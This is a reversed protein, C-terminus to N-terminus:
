EEEDDKGYWWDHIPKVWEIAAWGILYVIGFVGYTTHAGTLYGKEAGKRYAERTKEQLKRTFEEELAKKLEENM